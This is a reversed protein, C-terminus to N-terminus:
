AHLVCLLDTDIALFGWGDSSSATATALCSQLLRGVPRGRGSVAQARAVGARHGSLHPAARRALRQPPARACAAPAACVRAAGDRAAALLLLSPRTPHHGPLNQGGTVSAVLGLGCASLSCASQHRAKCAGGRPPAGAGAPRARCHRGRQRCREHQRQEACGAPPLLNLCCGSCLMRGAMHRGASRKPGVRRWLVAQM